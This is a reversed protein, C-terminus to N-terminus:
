GSKAHPLTNSLTDFLLSVHGGLMDSVAAAGGKYPVHGMDVKGMMKMLEGALHSSTGTGFAAMDIQATRARLHAFTAVSRVPLSPHVM